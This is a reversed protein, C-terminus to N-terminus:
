KATYTKVSAKGEDIWKQNDHYTIDSSDGVKVICAWCNRMSKDFLYGPAQTAKEHYNRHDEHLGGKIANYLFSNNMGIFRVNSKDDAIVHVTGANADRWKAAMRGCKCLTWEGADFARIDGCRICFLLKM